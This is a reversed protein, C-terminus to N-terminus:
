QDAPQDALICSVAGWRGAVSGLICRRTYVKAFYRHIFGDDKLVSARRDCIHSACLRLSRVPTLICREDMLNAKVVLMVETAHKAIQGALIWLLEAEDSYFPVIRQQLPTGM